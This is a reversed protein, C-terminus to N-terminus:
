GDKKIDQIKDLCFQVLESRNLEKLDDLSLPNDKKLSHVYQFMSLEEDNFELVQVKTTSKNIQMKNVTSFIYDTQRDIQDTISVDHDVFTNNKCIILKIDELKNVLKTHNLSTITTVDERVHDYYVRLMERLDETNMDQIQNTDQNKLIVIVEDISLDNEQHTLQDQVIKLEGIVQQYPITSINLILKNKYVRWTKLMGRLEKEQYQVDDKAKLIEIVKTISFSPM